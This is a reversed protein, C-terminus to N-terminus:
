MFNDWTDIQYLPQSGTNYYFSNEVLWDQDEESLEKLEESWTNSCIIMKVGSTFTDYAHCNTASQGLKLWLPPGQFLVKQKMVM